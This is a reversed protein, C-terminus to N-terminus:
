IWLYDYYLWMVKSYLFQWSVSRRLEHGVRGIGVCSTLVQPMAFHRGKQKPQLWHCVAVLRFEERFGTKLWEKVAITKSTLQTTLSTNFYHEPSRLIVSCNYEHPQARYVCLVSEVAKYLNIWLLGWFYERPKLLWSELVLIPFRVLLILQQLIGPRYFVKCNTVVQMHCFQSIEEGCLNCGKSRM